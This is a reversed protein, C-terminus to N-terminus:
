NSFSVETSCGYSLKMVNWTVRHQFSSYLNLPRTRYEISYLPRFYNSWFYDRFSYTQDRGIGTHNARQPSIKFSKLDINFALLQYQLYEAIQIRNTQKLQWSGRFIKTRYQKVTWVRNYPTPRKVMNYTYGFTRGIKRERCPGAKYIITM